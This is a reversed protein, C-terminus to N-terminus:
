YALKRYWQRHALSGKWWTLLVYSVAAMVGVALSVFVVMEVTLNDALHNLVAGDLRHWSRGAAHSVVQGAFRAELVAVRTDGAHSHVYDKYAATVMMPGTSWFVKLYPTLIRQSAAARSKAKDVVAMLFPSGREAMFFHNSLGDTSGTPAFVAQVDQSQVCSLVDTHSPYADLDAYIGGRAHVVLLRAMDARQINYQYGQYMSLLTPYENRVLTLLHHETWLVVTYNLPIVADRWAQHSTAAGYTSVNATKWIQHVITPITAHQGLHCASIAQIGHSFRSARVDVAYSVQHVVILTALVAALVAVARSVSMQSSLMPRNFSLLSMDQHLHTSYSLVLCQAFYLYLCRM